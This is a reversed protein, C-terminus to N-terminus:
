SNTLEWLGEKRLSLKLNKPPNKRPVPILKKVPVTVLNPRIAPQNHTEELYVGRTQELELNATLQRGIMGQLGLQLGGCVATKLGLPNGGTLM